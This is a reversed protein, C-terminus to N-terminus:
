IRKIGRELIPPPLPPLCTWTWAKFHGGSQNCRTAAVGWAAMVTCWAVLLVTIVTRLTPRRRM